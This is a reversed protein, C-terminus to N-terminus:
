CPNKGAEQAELDPQFPRLETNKGWVARARRLYHLYHAYPVDPAVRHDCFPILGGEEVLPALRDIEADIEAPLGQAHWMPLTEDWFGFDCIMGRDKPEFRMTALFRQLDNM